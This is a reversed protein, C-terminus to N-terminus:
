PCYLAPIWCGPPLRGAAGRLDDDQPGDEGQGEEDTKGHHAVQGGRGPHVRDVVGQHGLLDDLGASVRRVVQGM